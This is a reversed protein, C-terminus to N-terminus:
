DNLINVMEQENIVLFNVMENTYNISIRFM